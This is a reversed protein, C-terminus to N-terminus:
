WPGNWAPRFLSFSGEVLQIGLIKSFGRGTLRSLNWFFILFSVILSMSVIRVIDFDNFLSFSSVGLLLGWRDNTICETFCVVWYDSFIIRIVSTFIAMIVMYVLASGAYIAFIFNRLIM